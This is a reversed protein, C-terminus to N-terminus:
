LSIKDRKRKSAHVHKTCVSMAIYPSTGTDSQKDRTTHRFHLVELRVEEM